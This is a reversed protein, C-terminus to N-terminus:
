KVDGASEAGPRLFFASMDMIIRTDKIPRSRGTWSSVGRACRAVRRRWARSNERTHEPGSSAAPWRYGECLQEKVLFELDPFAARMARLIDKWVKLALVRGRFRVQEVVDDWAFEGASEIDGKHFKKPLGAFWPRM